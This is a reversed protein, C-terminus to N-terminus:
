QGLKRTAQRLRRASIVQRAIYGFLLLFTLGVLALFPPLYRTGAFQQLGLFALGGWLPILPAIFVPRSRKRTM